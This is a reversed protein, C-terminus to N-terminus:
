KVDLSTETDNKSRKTGTSSAVALMSLLTYILVITVTLYGFHQHIKILRPDHSSAILMGITLQAVIIGVNLFGLLLVFWKM